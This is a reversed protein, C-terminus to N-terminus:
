ADQKLEALTTQLTSLSPNGRPRVGTLAEIEDKIRVKEADESFEADAEEVAQEVEAPTAYDQPVLAKLREIEAQMAAIDTTAKEAARNNREETWRRAMDKLANANMGLARVSPGEMEHLAEISYIKLARCVSLQAPTIGYDALAELATGGAVQDGGTLFARYQDSFREAYTVVRTGVKRYMSEVPVVPAYNRDGAFRLEVVERPNDYVEKGEMESRAVNLPTM